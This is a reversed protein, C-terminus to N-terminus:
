TSDAQGQKEPNCFHSQMKWSDGTGGCHHCAWIDKGQEIVYLGARLPDAKEEKEPQEDNTISWGLFKLLDNYSGYAVKEAKTYKTLRMLRYKFGPIENALTTLTTIGTIKRRQLEPIINRMIVVKPTEKTENKLKNTVEASTHPAEINFVNDSNIM